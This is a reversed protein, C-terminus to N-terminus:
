LNRVTTAPRDLVPTILWSNCSYGSDALLIGNPIGPYTMNEFNECLGLNRLIWSDHSSGPWRACVDTIKHNSLGTIQENISHVSKRNIFSEEHVHPRQIEIHTGDILGCVNPIRSRNFVMAANEFL